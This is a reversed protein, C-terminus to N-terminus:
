KPRIKIRIFHHWCVSRKSENIKICNNLAISLLQIFINSITESSRWVNSSSSFAWGGWITSSLAIRRSIPRLSPCFKNLWFNWLVFTGIVFTTRRGAGDNASMRKMTMVSPVPPNLKARPCWIAVCWHFCHFESFWVEVSSNIWIRVNLPVRIRDIKCTKMISKQNENRFNTFIKLKRSRIAHQMTSISLRWQSTEDSNM